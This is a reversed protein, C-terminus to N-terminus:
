GYTAQAQMTIRGSHDFAALDVERGNPRGRLLLPGDDFAPRLARFRFAGLQQEGRRRCLEALAVAQLPGHVVLGPHGEVHMAYARDYHIRHANYTLASFRFLLTPDIDLDWAWTWDAASLPPAVTDDTAERPAGVRYVIDQDEIVSLKGDSTIEQRVKVFILEGSRGRKEEVAIVTSRRELPDAVLLPRRFELKGGAFMRRSNPIPPLFAGPKPHGDPGLERQAVRPLFALWHWLPPVAEGPEPPPAPSDLVGNLAAVAGTTVM